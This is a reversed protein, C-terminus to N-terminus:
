ASSNIARIHPCSSTPFIRTWARYIPSFHSALMMDYDIGISDWQSRSQTRCIRRIDGLKLLNDIGNSGHSTFSSMWTPSRFSKQAISTIVAVRMSRLYSTSTYQCPETASPSRMPAAQTLFSPYDLTEETPIVTKPTESNTCIVSRFNM